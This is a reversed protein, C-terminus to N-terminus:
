RTVEHLALGAARVFLPTPLSWLPGTPVHCVRRERRSPLERERDHEVVEKRDERDSEPHQDGHEFVM